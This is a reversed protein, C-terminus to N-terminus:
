VRSSAIDYFQLLVEDEMLLNNPIRDGIQVITKFDKEQYCHKFGARLAEVRAEKVKGKPKSAETKYAEFQKLLRKTRLKELDAENEPDPLYWQGKDNKLFNEELITRMEPLTDGKRMNGAVEKMWLPHLDQETKPAEELIHRLWYIADQENAVFISLQVFNPVAAKKRDYEQVQENTFFMGDREIFRERLGQQFKGADIPVPLGRQVYFAILRDFLIKPSREIITTTSNGSVLHIPLHALHESVFEWVGFDTNKYQNFRNEFQASPKYCSIALDQNVAVDGVIGHLGGRGKKLDSITTIIFGSRQLSYQITNWVAASTNSFEITMWKDPKLVRYYEKFCRYILEQYEFIGKKQTKNSIAEDKNNTKIKLWSEWIFNLESYMINAGFPPDSFIYDICDNPLNSNSASVVQNIINHNSIIKLSNDKIKSKIFYFPSIETPTSSVYLTNAMPGVHRHHKVSYRNMMHLRSQCSTFWIYLYSKLRSNCEFDDILEKMRLLILLNRKSYFQHLHTIGLRFPDSTKDGKDLEAVPIKTYDIIKHISAIKESENKRIKREFRGKSSSYNIIVPTFKCVSVAKKLVPDYETNLAKQSKRKIILGNCKPCPYEELQINNEFDVAAEWFVFESNCHPCIQNESWIVYNIFSGDETQYTWKLENELKKFILNAADEFETASITNTYNYTIFSTIPSLDGLICKRIGWQPHVGFKMQWEYNFKIKTEYEPNNCNNIAVGSMGTGAFSDLVVDGPQTYYLYYNMIIQHPVKTHYSHANYIPHNKSENIPFAFSEEIKFEQKRLGQKELEKKEEEWEAIFDNLWPNPCATYYPPDSLNLIDEDEGIPFGEMLKLEPLKKRLEERFYTRREEESNFTLGLVTIKNENSM